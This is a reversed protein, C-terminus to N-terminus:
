QVLWAKVDAKTVLGKTHTSPSAFINGKPVGPGMAAIFDVRLHPPRDCLVVLRSGKRQAKQVLPEQEHSDTPLPKGLARLDTPDAPSLLGFAGAEGMARLVPQREVEEIRADSLYYLVTAKQPQPAQPATIPPQASAQPTLASIWLLFLLLLGARLM